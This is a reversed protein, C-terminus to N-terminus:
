QDAEAPEGAGCLGRHTVPAPGVYGSRQLADVTWRRGEDTLAYRMDLITDSIHSGLTYLLQREVALRSLDMVISQPLKIADACQGVKELRSVYILKM